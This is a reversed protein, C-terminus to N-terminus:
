VWEITVWCTVTINLLSFIVKFHLRRLQQRIRYGLALLSIAIVTLPHRQM